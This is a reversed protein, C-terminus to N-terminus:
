RQVQFTDRVSSLRTLVILVCVLPNLIRKSKLCKELSVNRINGSHKVQLLCKNEDYVLDFGFTDSEDIDCTESDFTYTTQSGCRPGNCTIQGDNFTITEGDDVVITQNM